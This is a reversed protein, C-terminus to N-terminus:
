KLSFNVAEGMGDMGESDMVGHVYAAEVLEYLPRRELNGNESEDRGEEHAIDRSAVKEEGGGWRGVENGRNEEVCITSGDRRASV